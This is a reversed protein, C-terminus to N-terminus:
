RNTRDTRYHEIESEAGEVVIGESRVATTSLATKPIM